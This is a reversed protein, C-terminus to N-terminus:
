PEWRRWDVFGHRSNGLRAQWRAKRLEQLPPEQVKIGGGIGTASRTRCYTANKKFMRGSGAKADREEVVSLGAWTM